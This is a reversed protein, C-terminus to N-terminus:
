DTRAKVLNRDMLWLSICIAIGRGIVLISLWTKHKRLTRPISLGNYWRRALTVTVLLM